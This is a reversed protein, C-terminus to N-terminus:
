KQEAEFKIVTKYVDAKHLNNGSLKLDINHINNDGAECDDKLVVKDTTNIFQSYNSKSNDRINLINADMTNSGDSNSILSPMYANLSYPLSSNVTINVADLMELDEVGSYNEFTVSNTSLSMTLSNNSKIYLDLNATVTKKDITLDLVETIEGVIDQFSDKLASDDLLNIWMRAISINESTPNAKATEIAEIARNAARDVTVKMNAPVNSNNTIHTTGEFLSISPNIRLPEYVPERLEYVVKTPNALFWDRASGVSSDTLRSNHISFFIAGGAGTGGLVGETEGLDRVEAYPITKFKDSVVKPNDNYIRSSFYVTTYNSNTGEGYIGHPAKSGDFVEEGCNREIYWQGNIKVFRDKITDNVARLPEKLPIKVKNITSFSNYNDEDVHPIYPTDIDSEEM